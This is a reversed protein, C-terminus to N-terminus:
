LDARLYIWIDYMQLSLSIEGACLNNSFHFHSEFMHECTILARFFVTCSVSCASLARALSPKADVGAERGRAVRHILDLGQFAHAFYGVFYTKKNKM